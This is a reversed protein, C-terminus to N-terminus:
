VWEDWRVGDRFYLGDVDFQPGEADIIFGPECRSYQIRVQEDEYFSDFRPSLAHKLTAVDGAPHLASWPKVCREGKCSKLVLLLSDLRAAVKVTPLSLVAKVDFTSPLKNEDLLNHLQHPDGQACYSSTEVPIL